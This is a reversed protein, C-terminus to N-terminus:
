AGDPLTLHRYSHHRVFGLSGYLTRAPENDALVQLLLVSAGQEAAWQTLDAMIVRALGRRRRDARITLDALLAWGDAVNARGRAVQGDPEEVSAFVADPLRLSAAVADYNALAGDNGVLWERSLATAHTVAGTDIGALRRSAAAVGALMVDNDAEEPRLRVWGREELAVQLPSGVVSQVVPRRGHAAYFDDVRALAQDLPVEPDGLPLVSNARGHRGGTFRLRWGGLQEVERPTFLGAAHAEVEDDTFAALRSPRPPVPKGSVIDATRIEVASGDERRVTVVGGLWSECVGLVDTMAPGGSPGTEGPLMRRVVVRQGVVHRGLGHSTPTM